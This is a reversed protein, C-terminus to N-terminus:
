KVHSLPNQTIALNYFKLYTVGCQKPTGVIPVPIMLLSPLCFSICLWLYSSAPKLSPPLPWRNLFPPLKWVLFLCAVLCIRRWSQQYQSKALLLWKLNKMEQIPFYYIQAAKLWPARTLKSYCCYFVLINVKQFLFNKM